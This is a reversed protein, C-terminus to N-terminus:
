TSSLHSFRSFGAGGHFCNWLLSRNSIDRPGSAHAYSRNRAHQIGTRLYAPFRAGANQFRNAAQAETGVGLGAANELAARFNNAKEQAVAIKKVRKVSANQLAHLGVGAAQFVMHQKGHQVIRWSHRGLFDIQRRNKLLMAQNVADDQCTRNIWVEEASDFGDVHRENSEAIIDHSRISFLVVILYSKVVKVSRELGRAIEDLLSM